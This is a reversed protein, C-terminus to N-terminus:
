NSAPCAPKGVCPGLPAGCALVFVEDGVEERIAAMMAHLAGARGVSENHRVGGPM